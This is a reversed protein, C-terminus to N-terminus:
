GSDQVSQMEACDFTTRSLVWSPVELESCRSRKNSPYSADSM